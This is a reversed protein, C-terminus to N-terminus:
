TFNWALKMVVQYWKIRSRLQGLPTVLESQAEVLSIEEFEVAM